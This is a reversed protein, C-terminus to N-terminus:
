RVIESERDVIAQTLRVQLVSVGVRISLEGQGELLGTSDM